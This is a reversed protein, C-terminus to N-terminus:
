KEKKEDEPREHKVSVIEGSTADVQVEDVGSAGKKSIDFSYVLTGNDEELEASKVRMKEGAVKLRAIREARACDIRARAKLAAPEKCVAAALILAIM